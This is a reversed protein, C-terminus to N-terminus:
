APMAAPPPPTSASRSKTAWSSSPIPPSTSRCSRGTARPWASTSRVSSKRPQRRVAGRRPATGRYRRHRSQGDGEGVAQQAALEAPDRAVCLITGKPRRRLHQARRGPGAARGAPRVRRGSRCCACCTSRGARRRGPARCAEGGFPQVGVVAGIMNRNVYLQRRRQAATVREITEDIRSHVGFTLGIAPPTSRTSWRTSHTAGTACCTCCRGSCRASAARRRRRDRDADAARLHGARQRGAAGAPARCRGAERM